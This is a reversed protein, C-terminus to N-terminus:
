FSSSSLSVVCVSDCAMEETTASSECADCRDVIDKEKKKETQKRQQKGNRVYSDSLCPVLCTNPTFACDKINADLFLFLKEKLLFNSHRIEFAWMCVCIPAPARALM